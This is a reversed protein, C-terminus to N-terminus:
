VSDFTEFSIKMTFQLQFIWWRSFDYNYTGGTHEPPLFSSTCARQTYESAPLEPWTTSAHSRSYRRGRSHFLENGKYFAGHDLKTTQLKSRARPRWIYKPSQYFNTEQALLLSCSRYSYYRSITSIGTITVIPFGRQPVQCGM